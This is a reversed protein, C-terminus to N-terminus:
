LGLKALQGALDATAAVTRVGAESAAFPVILYRHQQVADLKATAPNSELVEIKHQATNWSADVLVIVDPNAAVVAEWSYSAWTDRIGAAINTLGITQMMLQPAGIGAGVYPISSGSSYWLATHEGALPQVTALEARQRDVLATADVHFIAAVQEIEDFVDDFGLQKPQYAPEKCASPSVYSRVGFSALEQRTGAGDASFNSEWGAYVLDPQRSLVAEESPVQDSISPIGGAEARWQEPVPGDQFATGIIRDGLGLALLMETSTSKITIVREPAPLSTDVPFGCNDLVADAATSTAPPHTAPSAAAACGALATAALTACAVAALARGAPRRGAPHPAPSRPSSRLSSVAVKRTLNPSESARSLEGRSVQRRLELASAGCWVRHPPQPV